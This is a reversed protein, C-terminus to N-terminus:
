SYRLETLKNVYNQPCPRYNEIDHKSKRPLVKLKKEEIYNLNLVFQAAIQKVQDLFKISYPIEWCRKDTNWNCLPIQKVQKSIEVNYSFYLRLTRNSTNIVLFDNRTFEPQLSTAHRTEVARRAGVAHRTEVDIIENTSVHCAADRSFYSKLIDANRSYNPVTWCFQNSHWKAYKFSRIFQIDAEDRPIKM